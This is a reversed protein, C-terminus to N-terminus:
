FSYLLLLLVHCMGPVVQSESKEAPLSAAQVANTMGNVKDV